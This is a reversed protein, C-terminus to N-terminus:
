DVHGGWLALCVLCPRPLIPSVPLSGCRRRNQCLSSLCRDMWCPLQLSELRQFRAEGRILRTSPFDAHTISAPHSGSVEDWAGLPLWKLDTAAGGEICLVMECCMHGKDDNDSTDPDVERDSNDGNSTPKQTRPLMSWIQICGPTDAPWKEGISTPTHVSPHPSVAVYHSWAREAILM